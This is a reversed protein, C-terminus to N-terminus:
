ELGGMEPNNMTTCGFGEFANTSEEVKFYLHHVTIKGTNKKTRRLKIVAAKIAVDRHLSRLQIENGRVLSRQRM